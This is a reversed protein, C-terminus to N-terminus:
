VTGNFVAGRKRIIDKYIQLTKVSEGLEASVAGYGHLLYSIFDSPLNSEAYILSNEIEDIKTKHERVYATM